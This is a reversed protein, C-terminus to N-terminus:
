QPNNISNWRAAQINDKGVHSRKGQLDMERAIALLLNDQFARKAGYNGIMAMMGEIILNQFRFPLDNVQTASPMMTYDVKITKASTPAAYIEINVDDGDMGADRWVDSTTINPSGEIWNQFEIDSLETLRYYEGNSDPMMINWIRVVGPLPQIADNAAWTYEQQVQLLFPWRHAGVVHASVREALGNRGAATMDKLGPMDAIIESFNAM